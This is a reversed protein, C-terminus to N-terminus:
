ESLRVRLVWVGDDREVWEGNRISRREDDEVEVFHPAGPRALRHVHHGRLREHRGL